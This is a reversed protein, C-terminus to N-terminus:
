HSSFPVTGQFTTLVGLYGMHAAFNNGYAGRYGLTLQVGEVPLWSAGLDLHTENRAVRPEHAADTTRQQDLFSVAGRFRFNRPHLDALLTAVNREDAAELGLDNHSSGWRYSFATGATFIDYDFQIGFGEGHTLGPDAIPGSAPQPNSRVAAYATLTLRPANAARTFAVTTLAQAMGLITGDAGNMGAVSFLLQRLESDTRRRDYRLEGGLWHLPITVNAYNSQPSFSNAMFLRESETQEYRHRGLRIQFDSGFRYGLSLSRIGFNGRLPDNADKPQYVWASAPADASIAGSPNTEFYNAGIPTAGSYAAGGELRLDAFFDSVNLRLNPSLRIGWPIHSQGEPAPFPLISLSNLRYEFGDGM